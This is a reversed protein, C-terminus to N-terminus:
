SIYVFIIYPTWYLHCVLLFQTLFSCDKVFTQAKHMLKTYLYSTTLSLYKM